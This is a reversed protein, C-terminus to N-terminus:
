RRRPEGKTGKMKSWQVRNIFGGFHSKHHANPPIQDPVEYESAVWKFSAFDTRQLYHMMKRRKDILYQLDRLLRKDRRNQNLQNSM